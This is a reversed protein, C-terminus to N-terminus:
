CLDCCKLSLTGQGAAVRRVVGGILYTNLVVTCVRGGVFSDTCCSEADINVVMVVEAGTGVIIAGHCPGIAVMRVGWHAAHCTFMQGSTLTYHLVARCHSM